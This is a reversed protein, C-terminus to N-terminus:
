DIVGQFSIKEGMEFFKVILVWPSQERVAIAFLSNFFSNTSLSLSQTILQKICPGEFGIDMRDVNITSDNEGKGVYKGKCEVGCKGRMDKWGKGSGKSCVWKVDCKWMMESKNVMM